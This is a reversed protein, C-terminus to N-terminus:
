RGAGAEVGNVIGLLTLMTQAEKAIGDGSAGTNITLNYNGTRNNTVNSTPGMGSIIPLLSEPSILQAVAPVEDKVGRKLGEMWMGAHRKWWKSPSAIEWEDNMTAKIRSIQQGLVFNAKGAMTRLAELLGDIIPNGIDLGVTRLFGPDVFLKEVFELFAPRDSESLMMM